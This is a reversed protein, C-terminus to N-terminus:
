DEISEIFEEVDLWDEADYDKNKTYGEVGAKRVKGEHVFEDDKYTYANVRVDDSITELILMPIQGGVTVCVIKGTDVEYTDCVKQEYVSHDSTKATVSDGATANEILDRIEPNFTSARM